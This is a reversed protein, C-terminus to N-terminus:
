PYEELEEFAVYTAEELCERLQAEFLPRDFKGFEAFESKSYDMEIAEAISTTKVAIWKDLDGRDPKTKEPGMAESHSYTDPTSNWNKGIIM